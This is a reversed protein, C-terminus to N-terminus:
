VCVCVTGSGLVGPVLEAVPGEDDEAEDAVQDVPVSVYGPVGEDEVPVLVYGSDEEYVRGVTETVM